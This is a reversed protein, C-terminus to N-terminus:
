PQIVKQPNKRFLAVALAAEPLIFIGDEMRVDGSASDFKEFVYGPVEVRVRQPEPFRNTLVVALEEGAVFANSRVNPNDLSYGLRSRFTGLLLTNRFRERLANVKGLYAQYNPTAAITERCRFIEVDSHSGLLIMENVPLRFDSREDRIDRNSLIIEPFTYKFLDTFPEIGKGDFAPNAPGVCIHVFDSYQATQDSIIEIGIGTEPSKAKLYGRLEKLMKRKANMIGTFPVKHGHSPDHCLHQISGLQDFFISDAGLSLALDIHRKLIECWEKDSPCAVVFTKNGFWSLWTGEGGFNYFERHELGNKRKICAKQGRGSRYYESDTDIVQGNFDLIVKGNQNHIEEVAKKLGAFGGQRPDPEYVPYGGMGAATWGFLFQTDILAKGADSAAKPLSAYPRIMDGCQQKLILRQWGESFRISDPIRPPTYWTNGAWKRYKDAAKHWTGNYVSWVFGDLVAQEGPKLFPFEAMFINLQGISQEYEIVHMVSDFEPDHRGFYIGSGEGEVILMNMSGILGPYVFQCRLYKNDQHKYATRFLQISNRVDNIREGGNVTELISMKKLNRRLPLIPFQFERLISGELGNKLTAHWRIEDQEMTATCLVHIDFIEGKGSICKSYELSLSKETVSFNMDGFPRVEIEARSDYEMVARWLPYARVLNEPDTGHFRNLNGGVDFGLAMCRNALATNM